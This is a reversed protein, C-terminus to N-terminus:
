WPRTEGSVDAPKKSPDAKPLVGLLDALFWGWFLDIVLLFMTLLLTTVLVVITDQVLRKRSSWSVKNMEAETAILFDAFTPINVARWALWLVSLALLFPVAFRQDVLATFSGLGFPLKYVLDGSGLVERTMLSYVGSLGVILLGVLTYQRMKRGQTRKYSHTHFWGQEELMKMWSVGRNGLLIRFLLALILAGIVVGAADGFNSWIARAVYFATFVAAIFLAIGGRIGFPPNTGALKGGAYALAGVVAVQLLIRVVATIFGNGITVSKFLSPVGFGALAIGVLIFAAGVASGVILRTKESAPTTPPPPSQVVATAM